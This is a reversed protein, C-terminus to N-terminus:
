AERQVVVITGTRVDVLARRVHVVAVLLADVSDTVEPTDAVKRVIFEM